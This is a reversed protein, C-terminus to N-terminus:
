DERLAVQDVQNGSRVELVLGSSSWKLWVQLPKALDIELTAVLDNPDISISPVSVWTEREDQNLVTKALDSLPGIWPFRLQDLPWATGPYTDVRVPNGLQVNPVPIGIPQLGPISLGEIALLRVALQVGGAARRRALVLPFVQGGPLKVGLLGDAEIEFSALSGGADASLRFTGSLDLQLFLQAFETGSTGGPTLGIVFRTSGGILVRTPSITLRGAAWTRGMWKLNGRVAVSVGNMASRISATGAIQAGLAALTGEGEFRFQPRATRRLDIEGELRFDAAVPIPQGGVSWHDTSFHASVLAARESVAGSVDLLSIGLLRLRGSGALAFHPGPGILGATALTLDIVPVNSTGVRVSGAEYHLEGTVFAHTHSVDLSGEIVAGGGFLVARGDGRIAFRNNSELELRCPGKVGIAVELIGPFVRWRGSVEAFVRAYPGDRRTRGQMALRGSLDLLLRVEMGAVRLALPRLDLASILSFIGDARLCGIFRVRQSGFVKVNAGLVVGPAEGGGVLTARLDQASFDAFERGRLLVADPPADDRDREDFAAAASEPDILLLVATADFGALSAGMRIKRFEPPLSSLTKGMDPIPPSLVLDEVAETISESAQTVTDVARGALRVIEQIAGIV